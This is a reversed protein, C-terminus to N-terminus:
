PFGRFWPSQTVHEMRLLQEEDANAILLREPGRFLILGRLGALRQDRVLLERGSWEEVCEFCQWAIDCPPYFVPGECILYDAGKEIALDVMPKMPKGDRGFSERDFLWREMEEGWSPTMGSMQFPSHEQDSRFILELDMGDQHFPGPVTEGGALGLEKRRDFDATHEQVAALIPALHTDCDFVQRGHQYGVLQPTAPYKLAKLAVFVNDPIWQAGEARRTKVEFHIDSEGPYGGLLDCTKKDGSRRPSPQEFGRLDLGLGALLWIAKVEAFRSVWELHGKNTTSSFIANTLFSSLMEEYGPLELPKLSLFHLMALVAPGRLDDRRRLYHDPPVPLRDLERLLWRRLASVQDREAFPGAVGRM